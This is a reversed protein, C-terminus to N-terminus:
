GNFGDLTWQSSSDYIRQGDEVACFEMSMAENIIM